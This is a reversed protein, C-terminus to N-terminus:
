GDCVSSLPHSLDGEYVTALEIRGLHPHTQQHRTEIKFTVPISFKGILFNALEVRSMPRTASVHRIGTESSQALQMVRTALDHQWVVSRSEDEIITIPLNQKTRYRLWDLHGTRGDPSEGIGLGARIVLTGMRTLALQEAAVRTNGYVSIPSPSVHETYRGDGGFVHDSSVYVLRTGEPMAKMVRGLQQVNMEYAWEPSAECKPVDCVAHCYVLLNPQTRRFVDAVWASNHLQLAPWQRVAKAKNGPSAFPLVSKPFMTALHFGLLSTAGFVLIPPLM